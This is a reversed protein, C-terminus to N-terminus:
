LLLVQGHCRGGEVSVVAERRKWEDEDFRGRRQGAQVAGGRLGGHAPVALDQVGTQAVWGVADAAVALGAVGARLAATLMQSVSGVVAAGVAFGAIRVGALAVIAPIAAGCAVQVIGDSRQHCKRLRYGGLWSSPLAPPLIATSPGMSGLVSHVSKTESIKQNCEASGLPVISSSLKSWPPRRPSPTGTSLSRIEKM